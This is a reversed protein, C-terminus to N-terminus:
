QDRPLDNSDASPLREVARRPLPPKALSLLLTPDSPPIHVFATFFKNMTEIEDAIERLKYVSAYYIRTKFKGDASFRQMAVSSGKPANAVHMFRCHSLFNRNERNRNFIDACFKFFDTASDIKMCERCLTILLNTRSINGMDFTIAAGTSPDVGM